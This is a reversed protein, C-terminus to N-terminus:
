NTQIDTTVGWGVGKSIIEQIQFLPTLHRKFTYRRNEDSVLNCISVGKFSWVPRLESDMFPVHVNYLKPRM